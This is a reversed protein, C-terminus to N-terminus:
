KLYGGIMLGKVARVWGISPVIWGKIRVSYGSWESGGRVLGELHACVGAPSDSTYIVEQFMNLVEIM